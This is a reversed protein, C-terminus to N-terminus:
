EEGHAEVWIRALNGICRQHGIAIPEDAITVSDYRVPSLSFIAITDAPTVDGECIECEHLHVGAM